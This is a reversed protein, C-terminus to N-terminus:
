PSSWWARAWAGLCCSSPCSVGLTRFGESVRPGFFPSSSEGATVGTIGPEALNNRMVVQLVAGAAGLLAGAVIAILSRPLRLEWVVTRHLDEAQRGLLSALVEEPGLRVTGTCLHVVFLTGILALGGALLVYFRRAGWPRGDAAGTRGDTASM